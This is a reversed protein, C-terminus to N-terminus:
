AITPLGRQIQEEMFPKFGKSKCINIMVYLMHPFGFFM